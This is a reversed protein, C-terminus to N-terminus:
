DGAETTKRKERKTEQKIRHEHIAAYTIWLVFIAVIAALFFPLAVVGAILLLLVVMAKLLDFANKLM